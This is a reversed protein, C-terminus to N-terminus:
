VSLSLAKKSLPLPPALKRPRQIYNLGTSDIFEILIHIHQSTFTYQSGRQLITVEKDTRMLGSQQVTTQKEQTGVKDNVTSSNSKTM